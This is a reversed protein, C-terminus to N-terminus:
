CISEFPRALARAKANTPCDRVKAVELDVHVPEASDVEPGRQSIHTVEGM